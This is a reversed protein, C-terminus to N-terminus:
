NIYIYINSNFYNLFPNKVIEINNKDIISDKIKKTLENFKNKSLNTLSKLISISSEFELSCKIFGVKSLIQSVQYEFDEGKNGNSTLNTVETLTEILLNIGSDM